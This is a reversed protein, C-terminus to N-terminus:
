LTLQAQGPTDMRKMVSFALEGSGPDFIFSAWVCINYNISFYELPSGCPTHGVARLAHLGCPNLPVPTVLGKVERTWMRKIAWTRQAVAGPPAEGRGSRFM